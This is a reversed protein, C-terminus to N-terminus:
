SPVCMLCGNAERRATRWTSNLSAAGTSTMISPSTAVSCHRESSTTGAATSTKMHLFGPQRDAACKKPDQASQMKEDHRGGQHEQSNKEIRAFMIPQLPRKAPPDSKQRACAHFHQTGSTEVGAPRTEEHAVVDVKEIREHQVARNRLKHPSPLEFRVELNGRVAPQHLAKAVHRHRIHSPRRIQLTHPPQRLVSDIPAGAQNNKRFGLARAVPSQIFKLVTAEADRLLKPNRDYRHTQHSRELMVPRAVPHQPWRLHRHTQVVGYLGLSQRLFIHRLQAFADAFNNRCRQLFRQPFFTALSAHLTAPFLFASGEGAPETHCHLLPELIPLIGGCGPLKRLLQLHLVQPIRFKSSPVSSPLSPNWRVKRGCVKKFVNKLGLRSGEGQKEFTISELPVKLQKLILVQLLTSEPHNLQAKLKSLLLVQPGSALSPSPLVAYRALMTGPETGIFVPSFLM